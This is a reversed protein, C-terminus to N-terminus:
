ARDPEGPLTGGAQVFATLEKDARVRAITWSAGVASALAGVLPWAFREGRRTPASDMAAEAITNWWHGVMTLLCFAAFALGLRIPKVIRAQSDSPLRGVANARPVPLWDGRAARAALRRPALLGLSLALATVAAPPGFWWAVSRAVMCRAPDGEFPWLSLNAPLQPWLDFLMWWLATTVVLLGFVLIGM